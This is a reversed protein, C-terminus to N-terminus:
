PGNKFRTHRIPKQHPDIRKPPIIEVCHQGNTDTNMRADWEGEHLLHHHYFCFLAGNSLDTPGNQSWPTLHHSECWSPTRDCGAWCCGRDRHALAIRQHRDYLRKSMGLDLIQSHGDLVIPLLHANCAFRRAQTASMDDGTSLTASGILDRLAALDVNITVTAALGGHQPMAETPLHEILESFARGLKQGHTLTGNAADCHEGDRDYIRPDNRRPSALGELAAKLIGAQVVPLTFRGRTMGEGASHMSLETKVWANREEAELKKGAHEEAGVPDIVEIIHNALRKLDDCSFLTAFELLTVQAADRGEAGVWDPLTNIAGCIISAKETPLDGTAWLLQTPEVEDTLNDGQRATRSAESRSVGTLNALWATISTAGASSHLQRDQAAAVLCACRAEIRAKAGFAEVVGATVQADTLMWVETGSDITLADGSAYYFTHEISGGM